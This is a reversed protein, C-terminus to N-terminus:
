RSSSVTIAASVSAVPTGASRSRSSGARSNSQSTVVARRLADLRQARQAADAVVDREVRLQQDVPRQEGLNEALGGRGRGRGGPRSGAAPRSDRTLVRLGRPLRPGRLRVRRGGRGGRGRAPPAHPRRRRDNVEVVALGLMRNTQSAVNAQM